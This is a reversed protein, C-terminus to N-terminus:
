ASRRANQVRRLPTFRMFCLRLLPISPYFHLFVFALAHGCFASRLYYAVIYARHEVQQINNNGNRQRKHMRPGVQEKYKNNYDITITNKGKLNIKPMILNLVLLLILIGSLILIIIKLRKDKVGFM